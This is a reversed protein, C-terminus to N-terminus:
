LSKLEKIKEQAYFILKELDEINNEKKEHRHLYKHMNGVCYAMYGQKGLQQKIYDLSEIKDDCYHRPKLVSDFEDIM